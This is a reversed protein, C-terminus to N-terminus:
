SINSCIDADHLLFFLSICLVGINLIFPSLMHDCSTPPIGVGRFFIVEDTPIVVNGIYPFDYDLHELGGVMILDVDLPSGAENWIPLDLHILFTVM